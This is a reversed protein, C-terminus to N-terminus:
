KIASFRQLKMDTDGIWGRVTEKTATDVHGDTFLMNIRKGGGHYPRLSMGSDPYVYPVFYLYLMQNNSALEPTYDTEGSYDYGTTDGAYILTSPNRMNGLKQTTWLFAKTNNANITVTGDHGYGNIGIGICRGLAGKVDDWNKKSLEASRISGAQPSSPCIFMKASNAMMPLLRAAWRRDQKRVEDEYYGVILDGNESSYMASALGLTKHNNVCATSRARERASQLAPLLIGALIAIIAIVVLLEILTFSRKRPFSSLHSIFSSFSNM